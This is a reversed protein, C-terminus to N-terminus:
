AFWTDIVEPTSYPGSCPFAPANALSIQTDVWVVPTPTVCSTDYARLKYYQVASTVTIPLAGVKYILKFYDLTREVNAVRIDQILINPEEKNSSGTATIAGTRWFGFGNIGDTYSISAAPFTNLQVGASYRICQIGNLYARVSTGDYSMGIHSWQQLPIPFDTVNFSANTSSNLALEAGWDQGGNSTFTSLNIAQFPAAWSSTITSDRYEKAVITTNNSTTYSKLYIWCSLSIPPSPNITRAGAAYNRTASAGTPYNGTSPFQACPDDFVGTGTRVITNTINLDTTTDNPSLSGSNRYPGSTENLRWVLIDNVDPPIRAM